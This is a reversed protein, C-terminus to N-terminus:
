RVRGPLEDDRELLYVGRMEDQSPVVIQRARGSLLLRAALKTGLEDIATPGSLMAMMREITETTIPCIPSDSVGCGNALASLTGCEVVSYELLTGIVKGPYHEGKRPIM